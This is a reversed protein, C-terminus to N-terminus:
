LSKLKLASIFGELTSTLISEQLISNDEISLYRVTRRRLKGYNLALHSLYIVAVEIAIFLMNLGGAPTFDGCQPSLSLSFSHVNQSFLNYVASELSQPIPRSGRYRILLYPSKGRLLSKRHPESLSSFIPNKELNELSSHRAYDNFKGWGSIKIDFGANIRELDTAHNLLFLNHRLESEEKSLGSELLYVFANHVEMICRSLVCIAGIDLQHKDTRYADILTIISKGHINAKKFFECGYIVRWSSRSAEASRALIRECVLVVQALQKLRVQM